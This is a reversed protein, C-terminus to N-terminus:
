RQTPIMREGVSNPLDGGVSEDITLTQDFTQSASVEEKEALAMVVAVMMQQLGSHHPTQNGSPPTGCHTEFHKAEVVGARNGIM